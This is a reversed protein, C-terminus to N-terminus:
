KTMDIVLQGGVGVNEPPNEKIVVVITKEPLGFAKVAADTVT